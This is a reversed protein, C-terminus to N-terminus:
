SLIFSLIMVFTQWYQPGLAQLGPEDFSRYIHSQLEPPPTRKPEAKTSKQPGGAPKVLLNVIDGINSDPIDECEPPRLEDLSRGRREPFDKPSDTLRDM